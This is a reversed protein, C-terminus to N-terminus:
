TLGEMPGAPLIVTPVLPRYTELIQNEFDTLLQTDVSVDQEDINRLRLTAYDIIADDLRGDWPMTTGATYSASSITPFYHFSLDVASTPTNKLEIRSNELDLRAYAIKSEDAAVEEWQNEKLMVIEEKTDTRWLARPVPTSFDAPLNVYAQDAVTTLTAKKKAFHLQHRQLVLNARRIARRIIALITADTFRTEATDNLEVRIEDIIDGLTAM